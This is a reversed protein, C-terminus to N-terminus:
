LNAEIEERFVKEPMSGIGRWLLKGKKYLLFVPIEDIILKQALARNLDYDITIIKAKGKYERSLKEITPQTLKCPACWNAFFDILVPQDSDVLQQFQEETWQTQAYGRNTGLILLFIIPFYQIKM